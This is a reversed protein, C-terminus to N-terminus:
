KIPILITGLYYQHLHQGEVVQISSPQPESDFKGDDLGKNSNWIYSSCGSKHYKRFDTFEPSTLIDGLNQSLINGAVIDSFVCPTVEGCTKIRFSTVGCPCGVQLGQPVGLFSLFSPDSSTQPKGQTFQKLQQYAVYLENPSCLLKENPLHYKPRLRNLRLMDVGLQRALVYMNELESYNSKMITTVLETRIGEGVLSELNKVASKFAGRVKCLRDHRKADPFHISVGIDSFSKVFGKYTDYTSGNTTLSLKIGKACLKEVIAAFEPHLPPEGGGFNLGYIQNQCLQSIIRDAEPLTVDRIAKKGVYCHECRHNCRETISWGIVKKTSM